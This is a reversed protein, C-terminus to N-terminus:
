ACKRDAVVTEHHERVCEPVAFLSLQVVGANHWDLEDALPAPLGGGAEEELEQWGQWEVVAQAPLEAEAVHALGLGALPEMLVDALSVVDGQDLTLTEFEEPLILELTPMEDIDSELTEAARVEEVAALLLRKNRLWASHPTEVLEELDDEALPAALLCGLSWLTRTRGTAHVRVVRALLTLNSGDRTRIEISLLAGAEFRRTLLVRLGTTSVDLLRAPWPSSSRPHEIPRCITRLNCVYRDDNRREDLIVDDDTPVMLHALAPRTM